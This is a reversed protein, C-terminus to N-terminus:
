YATEAECVDVGSGGGGQEFICELGKEDRHGLPVIVLFLM